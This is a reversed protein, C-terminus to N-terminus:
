QLGFAPVEDGDSSEDSLRVCPRNQGAGTGGCGSKKKQPMISSGTSYADDLDIFKFEWSCWLITEEALRSLHMMLISCAALFELAYDRDSVGDLSNGMPRDAWSEPLPLATSPPLHHWAGSGLPCENMRARCDELRTVDRCLMHAYALLHQAFTIPQARQLHTYGPM